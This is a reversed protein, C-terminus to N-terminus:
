ETPRNDGFNIDEPPIACQSRRESMTFQPQKIRCRRRFARWLRKALSDRLAALTAMFGFGGSCYRTRGSSRGGKLQELELRLSENDAKQRNLQRKLEKRAAREKKLLELALDRDTTDEAQVKQAFINRLDTVEAYACCYPCNHANEIWRVICSHGFLHGCRLSTLRHDGCASWPALCISCDNDRDHNSKSVCDEFDTKRKKAVSHRSDDETIKRKKNNDTPVTGTVFQFTKQLADLLRSFALERGNDGERQPIQEPETKFYTRKVAMRSVVSASCMTRQDLAFM